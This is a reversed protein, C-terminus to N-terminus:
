LNGQEFFQDAVDAAFRYLFIVTDTDSPTQLSVELAPGTGPLPLFALLAGGPPDIPSILFSPLGM